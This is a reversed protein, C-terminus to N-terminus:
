NHDSDSTKCLEKKKRRERLRIQAWVFLFIPATLSLASIVVIKISEYAVPVLESINDGFIALALSAFSFVIAFWSAILRYTDLKQKNSLEEKIKVIEASTSIVTLSQRLQKRTKTIDEDIEDLAGNYTKGSLLIASSPIKSKKFYRSNDKRRRIKSATERSMKLYDELKLVIDTANVLQTLEKDSYSNSKRMKQFFRSELMEIEFRLHGLFYKENVIIDNLIIEAPNKIKIKSEMQYKFSPIGHHPWRQKEHIWNYIDSQDPREWFALCLNNGILLRCKRRCYMLDSKPYESRNPLTMAAIDLLEFKDSNLKLSELNPLKSATSSVSGYKPLNCYIKNETLKSDFSSIIKEALQIAEEPKETDLDVQVIIKNAKKLKSQFNPCFQDSYSKPLQLKSFSGESDEWISREVFFGSLFWNPTSFESLVCNFPESIFLTVALSPGAWKEPCDSRTVPDTPKPNM